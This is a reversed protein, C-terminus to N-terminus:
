CCATFVAVALQRFLLITPTDFVIVIDVAPAKTSKTMRPLDADANSFMCIVLLLQLCLLLGM